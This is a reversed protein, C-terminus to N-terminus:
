WGAGSRPGRGSGSCGARGEASESIQSRPEEARPAGTRCPCCGAARQRRRWWGLSAGRGSCRERPSGSPRLRRWCTGPRRRAAALMRALLRYASTSAPRRRSLDAGTMVEDRGRASRSSWVVPRTRGAQRFQLGGMVAWGSTFVPVLAMAGDVGHVAMHVAATHSSRSAEQARRSSSWGARKSADRVVLVATGVRQALEALVRVAREVPVRYPCITMLDVVVLDPRRERLLREM